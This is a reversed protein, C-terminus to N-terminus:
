DTKQKRKERILTSKSIGTIEEVEKYSHSQLLKLAHEKQKKSFKPPRGEVFDARLKAQEKGESTREIIMDREFQAFASFISFILRGNPTNEIIGMNLIHVRINRDFLQQIIELAHRTNRAFRDVKTVVLTDGEKLSAICKEFEERTDKAGSIKEQYIGDCNEAELMKIQNTLDQNTTSVRAYGIRM